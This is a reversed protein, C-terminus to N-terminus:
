LYKKIEDCAKKRHNVQDHEAETLDSYPKDFESCVFLARFPFGPRYDAVVKEAIYGEINGTVFIPECDPKILCITMTLRATRKELPIGKMQELTYDVMEPDTMEASPLSEAKSKWRRSYIGPEGNLADIEIGGDDALTPLGTQDFFHRAKLEANAKFTTGTEEVDGDLGLENPIVIKYGCGDLFKKFETGKAQNNTGIILKQM